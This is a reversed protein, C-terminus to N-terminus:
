FNLNLRAWATRGPETIPTGAAFGFGSNGALNLHESYKKDFLNDVGIMLKLQKNIAYSGNLSLIGFGAGPGFDKGVVNGENLSIRNQKAVLRWVAGVAWAGKNYGVNFRAELPPIQPLPGGDSRNRGWAYAVSSGIQWHPTLQYATGLEAGMISADVNRATTMAHMKGGRAYNFLIFDQVQGVYGSLWADLSETKYQAGFDIQTTREPQVGEFANVSGAPGHHPSFLEWYDPFRQVHGIGVYLTAATSQLDREYRLFGSTLTDRRQLNATPNFMNGMRRQQRLDRASARDLRLGGIIRDSDTAHWTAEAFLGANAFRADKVWANDKYSRIKTGRRARHRSQQWDIGATLDISGSIRFSAALRAGWTTRNVNSAMPMSMSSMPEPRRLTFNDMVHDADNYYMQMEIRKFVDGINRKEFRLGLSERRFKSGDMGRGAYRSQGDGTGGTIEFLTNDDPTYGLALDTSWKKWRSAITKGGGDKYDDSQAHNATIRAYFSPNGITLDANLDGRGFSGATVGGDFRVGPTSFRPTDRDFRVTGASAGPGWIVTQPGKVVTLKDFSEPAIYSSPADMRSPCAGPMFSGNTLVALRSGFMGRLVPDGNTGGNRIASFGPITKLYDTGDSAPLPQRPVKPNTLITLVSSPRVATVVVPELIPVDPSSASWSVSPLLLGLALRIFSMHTYPYSNMFDHFFVPKLFVPNLNLRQRIQRHQATLLKESFSPATVTYAFQIRSSM